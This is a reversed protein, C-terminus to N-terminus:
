TKEKSKIPEFPLLEIEKPGSSKSLVNRLEPKPKWRGVLKGRYMMTLIEPSNNDVVFYPKPSRAHSGNLDTLKIVKKPADAIFESQSGFRGRIMIRGAFGMEAIESNSENVGFYPLSSDKLKKDLLKQASRQNLFFSAVREMLKKGAKATRRKAVVEDDHRRTKAKDTKVVLKLHSKSAGSKADDDNKKSVM